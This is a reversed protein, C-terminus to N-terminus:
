VSRYRHWACRAKEDPIEWNLDDIEDPQEIAVPFIGSRVICFCISCIVILLVMETNYVIANTPKICGSSQM